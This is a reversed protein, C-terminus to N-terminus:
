SRCVDSKGILLNLLVILIFFLSFVFFVKLLVIDPSGEFAELTADTDGLLLLNFVTFLANPVNAYDHSGRERLLVYMANGCGLMAIALVVVFWRIDTTIRIVMRVLAATAHFAQMFYLLGFWKLYVAISILAAASTHGALVTAVSASTMVVQLVDVVNWFDSFLYEGVGDSQRLQTWEYRIDKMTLLVLGVCAILSIVTSPNPTTSDELPEADMVFSLAVLFVLALLYVLFHVRFKAAAFAEWSHSVIAKLINNNFLEVNGTDVIMKLFERRTPNPFPVMMVKVQTPASVEKVAPLWAEQRTDVVAAAESGQVLLGSAEPIILQESQFAVAMVRGASALDMAKLFDAVVNPHKQTAETLADTFADDLPPLQWHADVSRIMNRAVRESEKRAVVMMDLVQRVIRSFPLASHLLRGLNCPIVALNCDYLVRLLEGDEEMAARYLLEGNNAYHLSLPHSSLMKRLGDLRTKNAGVRKPAADTLIWAPIINSLHLKGVSACFVVNGSCWALTGGASLVLSVICDSHGEMMLKEAGSATDWVRITNDVGGSYLTTGDASLALSYVCDSHGEMMLKEAGSATDWVRISNDVGGSYLTTGDESLALSVVCDSHGEM